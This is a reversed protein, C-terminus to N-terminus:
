KGSRFGFQDEGHIDEIKRRLIESSDQQIHWTASLAATLTNPLKPTKKLATMTVKVDKPWKGTEYVNSILQTMIRIGVEGLLRFVGGPVDDDGTARKYRMEEVGTRLIYPGKKDADVEDRYEVELNEM